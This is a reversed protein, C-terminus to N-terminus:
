CLIENLTKIVKYLEKKKISPYLPLSIAQKFYKENNKFNSKKFNMKKYFPHHYVPIYHINTVIGRKKLLKYIKDRDINKKNKKILVVYLHYSSYCNSDVKPLKLPLTSLSKDYIKAISNRKKVFYNLKKIQSIGLSAQFDTMRYNFGLFNQKFLWPKKSKEKKSLSKEIGHSRLTKIKDSYLKKNTTVAGGEGTTIIKIPHFSFVTLDSYQCSGVFRSDYKAGLAHSADEIIKFKFKKSLLFIRKMESSQGAFAVPIIIKPLKNLKAANILKKELKDIDINYTRLNIDILDVKAGCYLACNASSVFTNSTTWLYDNKKLGLALCSLHLASTASNVVTAYNSKVKKKILNEFKEIEPGTTIFNSKLTKSVSVIDKKDIFQKSYFLVM